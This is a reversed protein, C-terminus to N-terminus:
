PKHPISSFDVNGGSMIVCVHEPAVGSDSSFEKLKLAAAVAAAASPEVLIKLREWSLYMASVIEEESVTIVGSLHEQLVPWTQTGVPATLGDAITEPSSKLDVIRKKAAFSQACDDAAELEAAFIRVSPKISKVAICVGAALGGGSVAVVVTDVQPVQELVELGVTGQGAMIDPHNFPPILVSDPGLASMVEKVKGLVVDMSNDCIHVTAGFDKVADVKIKFARKPMIIHAKLYKIQAIKAVAQAHNGISFAVLIPPRKAEKCIKEVLNFGGRVKFSGTRQFNECKFYLKLGLLADLSSSTMVPTKYIFPNITEAAKKIDDLTPPPPEGETAM